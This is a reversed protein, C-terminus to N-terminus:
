GEVAPAHHSRSNAELRKMIRDGFSLGGARQKSVFLLLSQQVFANKM